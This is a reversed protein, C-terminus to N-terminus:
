HGGKEISSSVTQDSFTRHRSSTDGGPAANGMLHEGMDFPIVSERIATKLAQRLGHCSLPSPTGMAETPWLKNIDNHLSRKKRTPLQLDIWEPIPLRRESGGSKPRWKVAENNTLWGDELHNPSSSILEGVRMGTFTLRILATNAANVITKNEQPTAERIHNKSKAICDVRQWPIQEILDQKVLTQM